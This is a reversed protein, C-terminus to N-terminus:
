ALTWSCGIQRGIRELLQEFERRMQKAYFPRQLFALTRAVRAINNVKYTVQAGTPHPHVIHAGQYWWHGTLTITRHAEDIALADGYESGLARAEQQKMTAIHQFVSEPPAEVVATLRWQKDSLIM